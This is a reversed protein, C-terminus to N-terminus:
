SLKGVFRCERKMKSHQDWFLVIKGMSGLHGQDKLPLIGLLLVVRLYLRSRRKTVTPLRKAKLIWISSYVKSVGKNCCTFNPVLYGQFLSLISAVVVPSAANLGPPTRFPELLFNMFGAQDPFPVLSVM